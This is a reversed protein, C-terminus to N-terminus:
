HLKEDGLRNALIPMELTKVNGHFHFVKTKSSFCNISFAHLKCTEWNDSRLHELSTGSEELLSHTQSLCSMKVYGTKKLRRRKRIGPVIMSGAM